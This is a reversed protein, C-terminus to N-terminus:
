REVKDILGAEYLGRLSSRVWIASRGHTLSLDLDEFDAPGFEWLYSLVVEDSGLERDVGSDWLNRRAVEARGKDTLIYYEM